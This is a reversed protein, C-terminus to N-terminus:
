AEFLDEQEEEINESDSARGQSLKLGSRYLFPVWFSPDEKSGRLQFFGITVLKNAQQVAESESVNWIQSLSEVSQETKEGRLKELYLRSEPYEAYLTQVLRADSVASLADKFVSRDFLQLEPAADDGRELRAIEKERLVGLLHILERPATRGTGDACRGIMWDLTNSKRSGQEVQSPFLKEFLASQATSSNLVEKKDVQYIENVVDNNLFRRIILNLLAPKSWSIAMDRTIHSAERFGDGTIRQWIDSRLFVKLKINHHELLDLYVRFLATLANRELDANEAFAVDLRDLLIWVTYKQNCLAKNAVKLLTDASIFGQARQIETPERFTIRGTLGNILGTTQDTTVGGELAELQFLRRAYNRVGRLITILDFERELLGAHELASLMQSATDTDIQFERIKQAILVSIYLKWLSVFEQASAPPNVELDKFVTTGRPKEATILLISRDFLDDTKTVLLSYIASKGAGKDGRVIDIEGNIMRNWQDTEVFYKSLETTEEEAVRAGFSIKKLIEIKDV